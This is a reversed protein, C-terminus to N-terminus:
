RRPRRPRARHKGHRASLPCSVAKSGNVEGVATSVGELDLHPPWSRNQRLIWNRHLEGVPTARSEAACQGGGQVARPRPDGRCAAQSRGPRPRGAAADGDSAPTRGHRVAGSLLGYELVSYRESCGTWRYHIWDGRDPHVLTGIPVTWKRVRRTQTVMERVGRRTERM